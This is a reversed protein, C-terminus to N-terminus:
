TLVRWAQARGHPPEVATLMYRHAGHQPLMRACFEAVTLDLSQALIQDQDDRLDLTRRLTGDDDLWESATITFRTPCLHVLDAYTM